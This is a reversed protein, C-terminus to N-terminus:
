RFSRREFQRDTRVQLGGLEVKVDGAEEKIKPVSFGGEVKVNPKLDEEEVKVKSRSSGEVPSQHASHAWVVSLQIKSSTSQVGTPQSTPHAKEGQQVVPDENIYSLPTPPRSQLPSGTFMAEVGGMPADNTNVAEEVPEPKPLPKVESDEVPGPDGRQRRRRSIFGEAQLWEEARCQFIFKLVDGNPVGLFMPETCEESSEELRNVLMLM